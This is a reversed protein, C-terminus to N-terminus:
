RYLGKIAGWTRNATAVPPGANWTVRNAGPWAPATITWRPYNGGQQLDCLDFVIEAGLACGACADPGVSRTRDLTIKLVVYETGDALARSAAGAAAGYVQFDFAPDTSDRLQFTGGIESSNWLVPCATLFHAPQFPVDLAQSRCAGFATQWWPPIGAGEVNVHFSFTATGLAPLTAPLRISAYMEFPDGVNTDCAFFKDKTGDASCGDWDLLLAGQAFCTAPALVALAALLVAPRRM